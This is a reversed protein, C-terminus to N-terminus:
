LFVLKQKWIHCSPNASNEGLWEFTLLKNTCLILPNLLFFVSTSDKMVSLLSAFNSYVRVKHNWFYCSANPAINPASLLRSLQVKIPEKLCFLGSSNHTIVSIPLTFKLPFNVQPKYFLMLFKTLKWALLQFDAFKRKDFAYLTKSSSNHRM